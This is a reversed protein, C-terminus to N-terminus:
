LALFIKKFHKYYSLSITGEAEQIARDEEFGAIWEDQGSRGSVEAYNKLIEVQNNIVLIQINKNVKDTM